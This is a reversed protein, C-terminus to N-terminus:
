MQLALWVLVGGLALAFLAAMAVNRATRPRATRYRLIGPGALRARGTGDLYHRGTADLEPLKPPRAM